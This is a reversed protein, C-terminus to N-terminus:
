DLDPLENIDFDINIKQDNEKEEIKVYKSIQSDLKKVIEIKNIEISENIPKLIKASKKQLSKDKLSDPIKQNKNDMYISKSVFGAIPATILLHGTTTSRQITAKEALIEHDLKLQTVKGKAEIRIYHPNVDVVINSTHMYKPLKLEFTTIGTKYIDQDIFFDYRGQNCVRIDGNEKYVSPPDKPEEDYWSKNSKKKEEEKKIREDELEKYITRRYEKTYRNPNDKDPDNEKVIINEKAAKVLETELRELNQLAKIRESKLVETGNYFNLNLLNAIIYEKCGEWKECPNGTIYLDKLTAM